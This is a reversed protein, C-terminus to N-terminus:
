KRKANSRRGTLTETSGLTEVIRFTLATAGLVIVAGDGLGTPGDIAIGNLITGNKSGLDQLMAGQAGITIRAHHRSVGADDVLITADGSRGLIHEGEDLVIERKGVRIRHRVVAPLEGRPRASEGAADGFFAYGYGHITRVLRPARSDDGIASRLETVLSTLSSDSVFTSGWLAQHIEDKTLAQPRADLLLELLRLLKPGTRVVAGHRTLERTGRDFVCDGFVVRM